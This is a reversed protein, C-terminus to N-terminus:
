LLLRAAAVMARAQEVTLSLPKECYVDEGAECAHISNLAHWHDPTPANKL